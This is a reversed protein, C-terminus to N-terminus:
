VNFLDAHIEISKAKPKVLEKKANAANALVKEIYENKALAEEQKNFGDISTDIHCCMCWGLIDAQTKVYYWGNFAKIIQVEDGYKLIELVEGDSGIDKRVKLNKPMVRGIVDTINESLIKMYEEDDNVFFKDPKYLDDRTDLNKNLKISESKIYPIDTSVKYTDLSEVNKIKKLYKKKLLM